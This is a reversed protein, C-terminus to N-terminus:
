FFDFEMQANTGTANNYQGNEHSLDCNHLTDEYCTPTEAGAGLAVVTFIIGSMSKQAGLSHAASLIVSTVVMTCASACYESPVPLEAGLTKSICHGKGVLM